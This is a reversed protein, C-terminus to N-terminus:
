VWGEAAFSLVRTPQVVIWSRAWEPAAGVKEVYRRTVGEPQDGDVVQVADGEVLVAHEDDDGETIV